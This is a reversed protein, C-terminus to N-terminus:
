PKIGRLVFSAMAWRTPLSPRRVRYRLAFPFFLPVVELHELGLRECIAILEGVSYARLYHKEKFLKRLLSEHNVTVVIVQGGSRTVRVLEAVARDASPLLQVIGCSLSVDFADSESALAECDGPTATRYGAALALACMKESVDVGHVRHEGTLPALMQGNGCGADLIERGSQGALLSLIADRTVHFTKPNFYGNAAIGAGLEDAQRDFYRRWRAVNSASESPLEPM